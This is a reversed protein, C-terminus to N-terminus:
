LPNIHSMLEYQNIVPIGLQKAKDVKSEGPADGVVLFTTNKSVSSGVKGGQSAVLQEAQERTLTPLVGTIVVTMGKLAEGQPSQTQNTVRMHTLLNNVLRQGNEGTTFELIGMATPIGVKNLQTLDDLHALMFENVGAFRQAIQESLSRGVREIGLANIFRALSIDKSKEISALLNDASKEGFGELQMLKEKTLTFIDDINSLFGHDVLADVVEDGLGEIDAASRHAFHLIQGKLQEVCIDHGSCYHISEGKERVIGSGCFPCHKPMRFPKGEKETGPVVRTIEPIVDGARRVFVKCGVRVKKRRVEFLNHLTVNTVTTGGVFVPEIRAVPTARGTRGIQIEIDLVTSTREIPPYKYAVAWRPEKHRFGLLSQLKLDNVKFVIGDIEYDLQDRTEATREIFRNADEATKIVGCNRDVPFGLRALNFLVESQSAPQYSCLNEVVGYARFTLQREAVVASDLQRISGAAANRPNAFPELGAHRREENLKEFVSIPMMIEGRVELIDPLPYEYDPDPMLRHPIPRVQLVNNTVDEGEETDGRTLARVLQGQVYRLSIGLGDFKKEGFYLVQVDEPTGDDIALEKKVQADFREFVQDNSTDTKISIMPVTHKATTFGEIKSTPIVKTPSDTQAHYPYKEEYQELTRYLYDYESDSITPNNQAYYEWAHKRTLDNLYAVAREPPLNAIVEEWRLGNEPLKLGLTPHTKEYLDSM